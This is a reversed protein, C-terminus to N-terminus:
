LRYIYELFTKKLLYIVTSYIIIGIDYRIAESEFLGCNDKLATDM